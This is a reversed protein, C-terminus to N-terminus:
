RAGIPMAARSKVLRQLEESPVSDTERSIRLAYRRYHAAALESNGLGIFARLVIEVASEDLPDDRVLDEAFEIAADHRRSRLAHHALTVTIDHEVDRLLRETDDFWSWDLMFSPRGSRLRARLVELAQLEAPSLTERPISSLRPVDVSVWDSIEYRGERYRIVDPRGVRRRVRHVAVKLSNVANRPEAEGYLEEALEDRHLRGGKLGLIVLVAIQSPSLALREGASFVQGSLVDV